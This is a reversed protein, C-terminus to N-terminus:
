SLRLIASQLDAVCRIIYYEIGTKSAWDKFMKQAETMRGKDTKLELFITKNKSVIVFDPAGNILGMLHKRKIRLVDKINGVVAENPVHFWVANLKGELTLAKLEIAIRNSLKDEGKLANSPVVKSLIKYENLVDM